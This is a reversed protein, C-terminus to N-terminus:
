KNEILDLGQNRYFPFKTDASILTMANCLAHSIILHDAPDNHDKAQILRACCEYHEQHLYLIQVNNEDEISRLMEVPNPWWRRFHPKSRWLTVLERLTESSVFLQNDYDALLAQVNESLNEREKAYWVYTNTDLMLRM